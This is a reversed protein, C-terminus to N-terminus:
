DNLKQATTTTSYGTGFTSDLLLNKSNSQTDNVSELQNKLTEWQKPTPAYDNCAEVFGKLWNIYEKSTM